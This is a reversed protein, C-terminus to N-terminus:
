KPTLKMISGDGPATGSNAWYVSTADVAVSAPAHQGSALQIPAGGDVPVKMVTGDLNTWYVNIGDVAITYGFPTGPQTAALTVPATQGDIAVKMIKGNRPSTWYVNSTDIAIAGIIALEAPTGPDPQAAALTVPSGGALALKKLGDFDTWYVNTADVAVLALGPATAVTTPSAGGDVPVSLLSGTPSDQPSDTWYVRGTGVAIGGHEGTSTALVEPTGGTIAVKMVPGYQEAWYVGMSDVALGVPVGITALSVAPGGQAPEKMVTGDHMGTGQTTWYVSSKDVAIWLPGSQRSALITPCNRSCSAGDPGHGASEKGGCALALMASLVFFLLRTM